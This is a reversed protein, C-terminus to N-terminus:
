FLNYFIEIEKYFVSLNKLKEIAAFHFVCIFLHYIDRQKMQNILEPFHTRLVIM